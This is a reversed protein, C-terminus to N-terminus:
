KSDDEYRNIQELIWLKDFKVGHSALFNAHRKFLMAMHQKKDGYEQHEERTLAMLNEIRDDEKTGGAGRCIIHHTDSAREGSLESPIFDTDGYGFAAMYLATHLPKGNVRPRPKAKLTPRPVPEGDAEAQRNKGYCEKCTKPNSKWLPKVQHCFSCIKPKAQLTM